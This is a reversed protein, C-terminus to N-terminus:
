GRESRRATRVRVLSAIVVVDFVILGSVLVRALQGEAHVDGFGVTSMTTVTFYLSDTRTSLGQFQEPSLKNILYFAFAFSIVLVVLLIGLVRTTLGENGHRVRDLEKVMMWGVLGLGAATGALSASIVLWSDHWEAPFAYYAVLLGLSIWGPRSWSTGRRSM